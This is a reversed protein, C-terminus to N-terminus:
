QETGGTYGVGEPVEVNEAEPEQAWLKRVQPPPPTAPKMESEWSKGWQILQDLYGTWHEAPVTARDQYGLFRSTNNIVEDAPVIKGNIVYGVIESRPKDKEDEWRDVLCTHIVPLLAGYPQECFIYAAYLERHPELVHRIKTPM